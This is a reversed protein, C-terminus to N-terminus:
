NILRLITSEISEVIGFRGNFINFNYHEYLDKALINGNNFTTNTKEPIILKFGYEFAVKCTTDICYETQMGTIILQSIGKNDLYEKLGTEKFASNYNKSIVKENISPSVEEYIKWEDLNPEFKGGIEDNHQIYIVDVNNERCAKILSKINSIIEKVAFPEALVLANQVDVVLLAINTMEKDGKCFYKIIIYVVKIYQIKLSTCKNEYILQM